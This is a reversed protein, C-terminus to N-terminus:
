WSYFLRETTVAGSTERRVRVERITSASILSSLNESFFKVARGGEKEEGEDQGAAAQEDKGDLRSMLKDFVPKADAVRVVAYFELDGDVKAAAEQAPASAAQVIDRAFEKSSAFVMYKGSISYAAGQELLSQALYRVTSEDQWALKPDVGAVVFRARMEDTIARELAARDLGSESRMEVVVAREFRVFPKGADARSRVLESYGGPSMRALVSAFDPTSAGAAPAPSPQKKVPVGGRRPAQEDDVDVDFRGDLRSYRESRAAYNDENSNNSRTHDSVDPRPISGDPLRGFLAQSIADNLEAAPGQGRVEVLQADAPAFRLLAMARDGSIATTSKNAGGASEPGQGAKLKFWRQENMGQPTIRLDLLGSEVGALSGGASGGTNHHIWYSNFHRNRNLRTQDLWMTIEHSAFGKAVEAAGLVNALLSDQGAAKINGLARVMLGETTTVVLKGAVHAFCFQQRLSGGDTTVDRVYYVGSASTREQFQPAQKFLATAVARERAVETIFVLELNGVDYISVASMGGALESLRGEDLGFGLASEFDKRRDQLKLYIRSNSFAEFSASKYFKERVSSSLWAKMLGSLDRAQVYVMAGAPMVGALRLQEAVPRAQQGDSRHSAAAVAVALFLIVRTIKM